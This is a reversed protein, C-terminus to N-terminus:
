NHVNPTQTMKGLTEGRVWKSGVSLGQPYQGTRLYALTADAATAGAAAPDIELRSLERHYFPALGANAWTAIRVDEPAALKAEAMAGLAGLALYDDTVFYLRDPRPAHKGGALLKKFTEYGAREVGPFKGGSIDARATVTVAEIGAARLAPAADCTLVEWRLLVVSKVGAARCAAVFEPVASEYDHQTVGVAGPPVTASRSSVAYPVGRKALYRFLAPHEYLVVFDVSGALAVDLLSFDYPGAQRAAGPAPSGGAVSARTFLYGAQNLRKRLTEAFVTQFYNVDTEPYAFVVHGRWQKAARDRVTPPLGHRTLVYGEEVLRAIAAKTVIRSVGLLPVLERSSPIEDGATWRGAVIAQRLGDAVQDVLSRADNRNVSFPLSPDNVM